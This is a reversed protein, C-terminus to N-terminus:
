KFPGNIVYSPLLELNDNKIVQNQTLSNSKAMDVNKESNSLINYVNQFFTFTINFINNIDNFHQNFTKLNQNILKKLEQSFIYIDNDFKNINKFLITKNKINPFHSYLIKQFIPLINILYVRGYKILLQKYSLKNSNLLESHTIVSLNDIQEKIESSYNQFVTNPLQLIKLIDIFYIYSEQLIKNAIIQFRTKTVNINIINNTLIKVLEPGKPEFKKIPSEGSNKNIFHIIYKKYVKIYNIIINRNRLFIFLSIKNTNTRQKHTLFTEKYNPKYFLSFFIILILILILIFYKNNFIKKYFLFSSNM